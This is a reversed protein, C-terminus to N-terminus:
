PLSKCLPSPSPFQCLVISCRHPSFPCTSSCCEQDRPLGPACLLCPRLHLPAAVAVAISLCPPRRFLWCGSRGGGPGEWPSFGVTLQLCASGPSAKATEQVWLLTCLAPPHCTPRLPLSFLWCRRVKLIGELSLCDHDTWSGAHQKEWPRSSYFFHGKLTTASRACALRKPAGDSDLTSM